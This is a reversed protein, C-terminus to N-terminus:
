VSLAGAPTPAAGQDSANGLGGRRVEAKVTALVAGVAQLMQMFRNVDLESLKERLAYEVADTQPNMSFHGRASFAWRYNAGLLMRMVAAGDDGQPLDLFHSLVVIEGTETSHAIRLDLDDDLTLRYFGDDSQPLDDLGLQKALGAMLESLNM